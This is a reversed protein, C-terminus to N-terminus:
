WSGSETTHLFFFFFARPRPQVNTILLLQPAADPVIIYSCVLGRCQKPRTGCTETMNSLYLAAHNVLFLLHYMFVFSVVSLSLSLKM